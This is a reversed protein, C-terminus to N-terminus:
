RDEGEAPRGRGDGVLGLLREIQKKPGALMLVDGARLALDPDPAIFSVRGGGATRRRMGVVNVGFRARLNLDKLSKGVFGPPVSLGEVAHDPPVEMVGSLISSPGDSAEAGASPRVVFKLGMTKESMSERAYFALVDKRAIRGILSGAGDLVPLEEMDTRAMRELCTALSDTRAVSIPPSRMVDHAVLLGDVGDERLLPGIDQLSVTGLLKGGPDVVHRCLSEGGGEMVARVIRRLPEGPGIREADLRVLSSVPTEHVLDGWAGGGRRPGGGRRRLGLTHISERSLLMSVVAATVSALLVPLLHGPEGTMEVVLLSPTLIAHTSAALVAGMGVVAWSGAGTVHVAGGAADDLTGGFAAGLAAGVLLAPAFIGGAGGTGVTISTALVKWVALGVLLGIGLSGPGEGVLREITGYGAGAIEPMAVGMAGVVLGGAAPLIWSTTPTRIAEVVEEVLNLGHTFVVGALGAALGLALAPALEWAELAATPPLVLAAVPLGASEIAGRVAVAAAASVALPVLARVQVARLLVEASFLVGAIPSGFLASIAGAAGAAVLVKLRQGDAGLATGAAASIAGGAHVIPGEPGASGGSGITLIAAVPKVMGRRGNVRGGRRAIGDIMEPVDQGFESRGLMRVLLGCALGGAAPALLRLPWPAGSGAAAPDAAGFVFRAAEGFAALLLCCASASLMGVIAAQLVTGPFEGGLARDLSKSLRRGLRTGSPEGIPPGGTSPDPM